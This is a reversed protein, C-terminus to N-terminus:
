ILNNVTEWNLAGVSKKATIILAANRVMEKAMSAMAKSREIERAFEEDTLDTRNLNSIREGLINQLETQKM